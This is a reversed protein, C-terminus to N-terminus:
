QAKEALNTLNSQSLLPKLSKYASQVRGRAARASCGLIEGMEPYSYDAWYRLLIAERLPHSLTQIAEWVENRTDAEITQNELGPDSDAIDFGLKLWVLLPIGPLWRRRRKNRCRSVTITHLWTTFRAKHPDYKNIQTLAYTLTDQAVEEADAADSLLGYALGYVTGRYHNYIANAAQEDGAQWRKILANLDNM